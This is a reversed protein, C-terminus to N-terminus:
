ENFYKLNKVVKDVKSIRDIKFQKFESNKWHIVAKKKFLSFFIIFMFLHYIVLCIDMQSM